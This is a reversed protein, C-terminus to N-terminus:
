VQVETPESELLSGMVPVIVLRMSHVKYGFNPLKSSSDLKCGRGLVITALPSPRTVMPTYEEASVRM